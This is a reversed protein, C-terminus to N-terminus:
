TNDGPYDFGHSPKSKEMEAFYGPFGLHAGGTRLIAYQCRLVKHTVATYPENAGEGLGVGEYVLRKRVEGREGGGGGCGGVWM